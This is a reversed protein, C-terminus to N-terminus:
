RRAEEARRLWLSSSWGRVDKGGIRASVQWWDGDRLGTTTVVTGAPAVAIRPAGIGKDARLNLDDFVTYSVGAYIPPVAAALAPQVAPLLSLLLAGLGWTGTVLISAARLNPRRWWRAPTLWAALVLTAILGAAYAGTTLYAASPM